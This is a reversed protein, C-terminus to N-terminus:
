VGDCGVVHLALVVQWHALLAGIENGTFIRWTGDAQKEAQVLAHAVCDGCM